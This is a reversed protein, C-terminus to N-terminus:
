TLSPKARRRGSCCGHRVFYRHDAGGARDSALHQADEGLTGKGGGLDMGHGGLARGAALHREALIRDELDLVEVFEVKAADVDRQERRAGLDRGHVRRAGGLRAGDDDVVGRVEAHVLVHREHHGLDIRLRDPLELLAADDGIGIARGDLHHHRQLRQVIERADLADDDRGILRDGAGAALRHVLEEVLGAPDIDVIGDLLFLEGLLDGEVADRMDVDEHVVARGLLFPLHRGLGALNEIGVDLHGRGAHAHRHEDAM